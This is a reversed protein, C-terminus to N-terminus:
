HWRLGTADVTYSAGVTVPNPTVTCAGAPPDALAPAASSLAASITLIALLSRM